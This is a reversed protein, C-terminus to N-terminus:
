GNVFAGGTGGAAAETARTCGGDSGGEIPVGPLGTSSIAVGGPFRELGSGNKLESSSSATGLM